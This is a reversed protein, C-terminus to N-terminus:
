FYVDGSFYDMNTHARNDDLVVDKYTVSTKDHLTVILRDAMHGETHIHAAHPHPTTM